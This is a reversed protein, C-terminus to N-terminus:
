DHGAAPEHQVPHGGFEGRMLALLKAAYDNSGQTAFRMMLALSIVPAPIGVNNRDV